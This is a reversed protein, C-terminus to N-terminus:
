ERYIVIGGYKFGVLQQLGDDGSASCFEAHRFLTPSIRSVCVCVCVCLCVCVCVCVCVCMCVCLSNGQFLLWLRLGCWSLRFELMSVSCQLWVVASCCSGQ